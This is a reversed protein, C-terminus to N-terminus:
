EVILNDVRSAGIVFAMVSGSKINGSPNPLLASYTKGAVIRGSPPPFEGALRLALARSRARVTGSVVQDQVPSTLQYETGTAMDVLFATNTGLGILGVKEPSMIQYQLDIASGARVLALKSVRIGWQQEVATIAAPAAPAIDTTTKVVATPRTTELTPVAQPALAKPAPSNPSLLFMGVLIIVVAVVTLIIMRPRIGDNVADNNVANNMFNNEPLHTTAETPFDRMPNVGTTTNGSKHNDVDGKALNTACTDIPPHIM